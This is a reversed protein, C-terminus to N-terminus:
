ETYRVDVKRRRCCLMYETYLRDVLYDWWGVPEVRESYAMCSEYGARRGREIADEVTDDVQFFSEIARFMTISNLM